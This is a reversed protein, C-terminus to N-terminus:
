DLTLEIGEIMNKLKELADKNNLSEVALRIFEIKKPFQTFNHLNQSIVRLDDDIKKSLNDKATKIRGDPFYTEVKYVEDDEVYRVTVPKNISKSINLASTEIHDSELNQTDEDSLINDDAHNMNELSILNGSKVARFVAINDTGTLLMEVDELEFDFLQDFSVGLAFYLKELTESSVFSRGVEIRTLQRQNVGIMEALKEQTLHKKKRLKKLNQGFAITLRNMFVGLGAIM